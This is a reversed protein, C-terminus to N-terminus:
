ASTVSCTAAWAFNAAVDSSRASVVSNIEIETVGDTTFRSTSCLAVSVTLPVIDSLVVAGAAIRSPIPQVDAVGPTALTSLDPLTVATEAPSVIMEAFAPSTAEVTVTRTFSGSGSSVVPVSGVVSGDAVVTVLPGGTEVMLGRAFAGVVVSPESVVVWGIPGSGAVVVGDAVVIAGSVVGDGVLELEVVEEEVVEVVELVNVVEVVDVVEVVNVVEVVIARDTGPVGLTVPNLATGPAASGPWLSQERVQLSGSEPPDGIM